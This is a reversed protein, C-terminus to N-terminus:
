ICNNIIYNWIKDGNEKEIGFMTSMFRYDVKTINKVEKASLPKNLIKFEELETYYEENVEKPSNHYNKKNIVGSGKGMAVIGTGSRYLFVKDGKQIKNIKFKWPDYYASAKKNKMMDADDQKDNNYNTNLIYCGEEFEIVDEEPNYTEFEIIKESKSTEYVRYIIAEVSLGTKRWYNVAQRTEVDTGDTIIVFSQKKNFDEKRIEEDPGLNFHNKHEEILEKGKSNFKHYLDALLPYEYQGFIQGYRLVQLLNEKDSKWRKLEFIYLKGTRDLALIDPEEKGRREQFITMLSDTSIVREINHSILDELDKEKWGIYDLNTRKVTELTKKDNDNLYFLM